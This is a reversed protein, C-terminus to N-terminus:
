KTENMLDLRAITNFRVNNNNIQNYINSFSRFSNSRTSISNAGSNNGFKHSILSIADNSNISERDMTDTKKSSSTISFNDMLSTQDFVSSENILKTKNLFLSLRDNMSLPPSNTTKDLKYGNDIDENKTLSTKFNDNAISSLNALARYSETGGIIINTKTFVKDVIQDMADVSDEEGSDGKTSHNNKDNNSAIYANIKDNKFNKDIQSYSVHNPDENQYIYFSDFVKESSNIRLLECYAKKNNGGYNFQCFLGGFRKANEDNEGKAYKKQWHSYDKEEGQEIYIENGGVGNLIDLTAGKRIQVVCGDNHKDYEDIMPSKFKSMVHTRAYVNDHANLIIAGHDKCYDYFSDGDESILNRESDQPNKGTHYYKDYYHWACIKWDETAHDLHKKLFYLQESRSDVGSINQSLGIIRMNKYVCSWMAKSSSFECKVGSNKSNTMEEYLIDEYDRLKGPCQDDGEQNGLIGMFQYTRDSDLMTDFYKHPSCKYDYNGLHLLADYKTLKMVERSEREVGSDGIIALKFEEDGYTFSDLQEDTISNRINQEIDKTESAQKTKNTYDDEIPQAKSQIIKINIFFIFPILNKTSLKM